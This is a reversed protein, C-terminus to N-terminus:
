SNNVLPVGGIVSWLTRRETGFSRGGIELSPTEMKPPRTLSTGFSSSMLDETWSDYVVMDLVHRKLGVVGQRGEM